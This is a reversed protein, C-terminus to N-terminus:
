ALPRAPPASERQFEGGDRQSFRVNFRGCHQVPIQHGHIHFLIIRALGSSPTTRRPPQSLVVAAWSRPAALASRGARITVPPGMSLPCQRPRSSPEPVSAKRIHSETREPSSLSSSNKSISLQMERLAPCQMTIPVALVRALTASAM